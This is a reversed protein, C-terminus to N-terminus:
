SCSADLNNIDIALQKEILYNVDYHQSILWERVDHQNLYHGVLSKSDSWLHSPVIKFMNYIHEYENQSIKKLDSLPKLILNIEDYRFFLVGSDDTDGDTQIYKETLGTIKYESIEGTYLCFVEYPLYPALHRLELKM